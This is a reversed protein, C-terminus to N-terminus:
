NLLPCQLCKSEHCYNKYLHILGQQQCANLVFDDKLGLQARMHRTITNSAMQHHRLYLTLAKEKISLKGFTEGWAFTFPLIVNVEIQAAKCLGLLNAKFAQPNLATGKQRQLFHGDASVLLGEQISPHGPSPVAKYVLQLMGKLLGVKYYHQIIYGMALIRRIPSNHPYIHVLQWDDESMISHEKGITKWLTRLRNMRNKDALAITKHKSPLLGSKGLLYAQKSDVSECPELKELFNLPAIQALKEFPSMNQSYGLARMIGQYLVQNAKEKQMLSQFLMVKQRFRQEGSLKLVSSIFHRTRQQIIQHCPLQYYQMLYPQLYLERPLCLLRISKGNQTRTVMNPHQQAVIHLIVNNYKSNHNHGHQYWDRAYVHVEIDGRLLRCKDNLILAGQFDPGDNCERKGLYVIKIHEGQETFLQKGLLQRVVLIM